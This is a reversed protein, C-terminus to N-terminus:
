LTEKLGIEMQMNFADKAMPGTIKGTAKTSPAMLGFKFETAMDLVWLITLKQRVVLRNSKDGTSQEMLTFLNMWTFLDRM